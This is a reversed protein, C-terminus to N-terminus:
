GAGNAGVLTVIEGEAMTLDVSHLVADRGYGLSLGKIDLMM